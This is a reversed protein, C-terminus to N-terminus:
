PEVLDEVVNEYGKEAHAELEARTTGFGARRMLHAMLAVDNNSMEEEKSQRVTIAGFCKLHQIL